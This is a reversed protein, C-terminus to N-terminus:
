YLLIDFSPLTVVSLICRVVTYCVETHKCGRELEYDSRVVVLSISSNHFLLSQQKVRMVTPVTFANSICM